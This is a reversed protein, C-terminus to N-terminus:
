ASALAELGLGFRQPRPWFKPRSSKVDSPYVRKVASISDPLLMKTTNNFIFFNIALLPFNSVLPSGLLLPKAGETGQCNAGQIVHIYTITELHVLLPRSPILPM